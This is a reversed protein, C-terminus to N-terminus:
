GNVSLLMPTSHSSKHMFGAMGTHAFISLFSAKPRSAALTGEDALNNAVDALWQCQLIRPHWGIGIEGHVPVICSFLTKALMQDFRFSGGGSPKNAHIGIFKARLRENSVDWAPFRKSNDWDATSHPDVQTRAGLVAEQGHRPDGRVLLDAFQPLDDRVQEARLGPWSWPACKLKASGLFVRVSRVDRLDDTRLVEGAFEDRLSNRRLAVVSARCIRPGCAREVGVM